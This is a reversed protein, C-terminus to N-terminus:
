AMWRNRHELQAADIAKLVFRYATASTSGNLNHEDRTSSFEVLGCRSAENRVSNMAEVSFCVEQAVQHVLWHDPRAVAGAAYVKRHKCIRFVYWRALDFERGAILLSEAVSRMVDVPTMGSLVHMGFYAASDLVDASMKKARYGQACEGREIKMTIEARTENGRVDEGLNAAYRLQRETAPEFLAALANEVDVM